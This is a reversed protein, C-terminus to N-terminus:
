KTRNLPPQFLRILRQEILPAIDSETVAYWVEANHAAKSLWDRLAPNSEYNPRHEGLRRRLNVSRGIYMWRFSFPLRMSQVVDGFAYVGPLTPAIFAASAAPAVRQWDLNEFLSGM